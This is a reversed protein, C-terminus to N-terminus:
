KLLNMKRTESFNGATLRYLYVGSAANRGYSDRGDWYVIHYGAITQNNILTTIEEGIINFIKITVNTTNPIYFKIATSPNFPNPSNQMLEAKAPSTLSVTVADYYKFNGKIDIQKLRYSFSTSGVPNNDTFSYDKPSNSNGAGNVLGIKEWDKFHPIASSRQIEFGFNNVETATNWNLVVANNNLAATFSTLEVPFASDGNIDIYSTRTYLNGEISAGAYQTIAASALINGKFDENIFASSGVQWFVNSALAGGTLVVNSGAATTLTSVMKFIFIDSSTGTLTLTGNIVFAGASAYIGRGLTRGGLDSGTAFNANATRGAINSYVTAYDTQAQPVQTNTGTTTTGDCTGSNTVTTGWLNGSVYGSNTLTTGGLNGNVTGSNTVTTAGVNGTVIAPPVITSASGALIRFNGASLLNVPLPNPYVPIDSTTWLVESSITGNNTGKNDNLALGSGANMKYYAQLGTESGNLPGYMTSQIEVVSRAIGWIRVEDLIGNLFYNDMKSHSAFYINNGNVDSRRPNPITTTGESVGNIYLSLNTGDVTGTLHYWTGSTVITTSTKRTYSNATSSGVQFVIQNSANKWLGFEYTYSHNKSPDDDKLLIEQTLSLDGFKVWCEISFDGSVNITNDSVQVYDSGTFGLAGGGWTQSFAASPIILATLLMAIIIHLSRIGLNTSSIIYNKM